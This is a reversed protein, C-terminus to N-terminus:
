VSQRLVARIIFSKLQIIGVLIAVKSKNSKIPFAFNPDSHVLIRLYKCCKNILIKSKGYNLAIDNFNNM